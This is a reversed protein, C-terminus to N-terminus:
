SLIKAMKGATQKQIAALKEADKIIAVNGSSKGTVVASIWTWSCGYKTALAAVAGRPMALRLEPSGVIKTTNESKSKSKM